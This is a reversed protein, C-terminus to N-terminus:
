RKGALKRSLYDRARQFITKDFPLYQYKRLLREAKRADIDKKRRLSVFSNLREIVDCFKLVVFYEKRWSFDHILIRTEPGTRLLASLCCAVRFRGDVLVLDSDSPKTFVRSSYDPWRNRTSPDTPGGWAGTPGIDVVHVRLRGQASAASAETDRLLDDIFPQSSEVSDISELSPTKVAMLTSVGAGFELYHRSSSLHRQLFEVEDPQLNLANAESM